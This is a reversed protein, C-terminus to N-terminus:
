CTAFLVVPMYKLGFWYFWFNPQLYVIVILMASILHLSGSSFCRLLLVLLFVKTTSHVSWYDARQYGLWFIILLWSSMLSSFNVVSSISAVSFFYVSFSSAKTLYGNFYQLWPFNVVYNLVVSQIFLFITSSYVLPQMGGGEGFFAIESDCFVVFAYIKTNHNILNIIGQKETTGM